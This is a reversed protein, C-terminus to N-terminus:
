FFYPFSIPKNRLHGYRTQFFSRRVRTGGGNVGGGGGAVMIDGNM